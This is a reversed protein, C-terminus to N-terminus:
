KLFDLNGRLVVDFYYGNKIVRGRIFNFVIEMREIQNWSKEYDEYFKFLKDFCLIGYEHILHYLAGWSIHIHMRDKYLHVGFYVGIEFFSIPKKIYQNIEKHQILKKYLFFKEQKSLM